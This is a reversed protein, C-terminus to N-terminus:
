APPAGPLLSPARREVWRRLEQQVAAFEESPAAYTAPPLREIISRMHAIRAERDPLPSFAKQTVNTTEPQVRQIYRVLAMPDFGAHAMTQVGLTDAASEYSRQFALIALPIAPGEACGGVWGGILTQQTSASNALQVLTAERTLHRQAVHQMAHALMGAFEAEDQAALFLAAPVFVYGGPLTVPEHVARCPDDAIVSFTYPFAADPVQAAIRQGLHDLYNQATESDIPTTQQHFDAALQRGLAAEKELSYFNVGHGTPGLPSQAILPWAVLVWAARRLRM